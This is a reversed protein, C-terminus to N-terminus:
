VKVIRHRRILVAKVEEPNCKTTHPLVPIGALVTSLYRIETAELVLSSSGLQHFRRYLM